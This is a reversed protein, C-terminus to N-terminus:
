PTPYLIFHFHTPCHQLCIDQNSNCQFNELCSHYQEHKFLPYWVAIIWVALNFATPFCQFLKFFVHINSLCPLKWNLFGSSVALTDHRIWIKLHIFSKPNPDFMLPPEPSPFTCFITFSGDLCVWCWADLTVTGTAMNKMYSIEFM